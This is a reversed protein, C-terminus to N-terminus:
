MISSFWRRVPEKVYTVCALVPAAGHSLCFWKARRRQNDFVVDHLPLHETKQQLLAAVLDDLAIAGLSGLPHEVSAGARETQHQRVNLKRPAHGPDLERVDGLVAIWLEVDDDGGAAGQRLGQGIARFEPGLWPRREVHEAFGLERLQGSPQDPPESEQRSARHYPRSMVKDKRSVESM